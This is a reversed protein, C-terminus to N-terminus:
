FKSPSSVEVITSIGLQISLTGLGTSLYNFLLLPDNLFLFFHLGYRNYVSNSMLRMISSILSLYNSLVHM